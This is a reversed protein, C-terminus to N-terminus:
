GSQLKVGRIINKVPHYKEGVNISEYSQEYKIYIEIKGEGTKVRRREEGEGRRLRTKEEM